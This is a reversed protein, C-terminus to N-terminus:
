LRRLACERVAREYVPLMTVKRQGGIDDDGRGGIAPSTSFAYRKSPDNRARPESLRASRAAYPTWAPLGWVQWTGNAAASSCECRNIFDARGAIVALDSTGLAPGRNLRSLGVVLPMREGCLAVRAAILSWGIWGGTAEGRADRARESIGGLDPSPMPRSLGSRRLTRQLPATYPAITLLPRTTAHM